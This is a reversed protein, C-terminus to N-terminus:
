GMEVIANMVLALACRIPEDALPYETQETVPIFYFALDM